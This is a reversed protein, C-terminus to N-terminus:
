GYMKSFVVAAIVVSVTQFAFFGFIGMLFYKYGDDQYANVEAIPDQMWYMFIPHLAQLGYAAEAQEVALRFFARQDERMLRLGSVARVNNYEGCHFDPAHGSCCNLGVAWFDFTSVNTANRGGGVVPAVCYVDLNKFGMSRTLDLHSGPTFTIRGADMLQNGTYTSPNVSVYVNLEQVEFFPQMNTNFNSSGAFYAALWAVLSTMFLFAFWAPESVGETKRRFAAFALYGFLAVVVLLALTVLKSLAANQFHVSFTLVASVSVFIILPIFLCTVIAVVSSRKRAFPSKIPMDFGPAQQEFGPTAGYSAFSDGQGYAQGYQSYM